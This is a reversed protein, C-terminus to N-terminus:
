SGWLGEGPHVACGKETSPQEEVGRPLKTEEHMTAGTRHTSLRMGMWGQLIPGGHEEM